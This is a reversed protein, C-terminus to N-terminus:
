ATRRADFYFDNASQTVFFDSGHLEVAVEDLTADSDAMAEALPIPLVEGPELPRMGGRGFGELAKSLEEATLVSISGVHRQMLVEDPPLYRGTPILTQGTAANYTVRWAAGTTWRWWVTNASSISFQRNMSCGNEKEKRGYCRDYRAYSL